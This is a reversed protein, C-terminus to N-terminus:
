HQSTCSRGSFRRLSIRGSPIAAWRRTSGPARSSGEHGPGPRGLLFGAVLVGFLLLPLIQKAFGWTAELWERVEERSFWSRAMYTFAALLGLVLAWRLRYILEYLSNKQVEEVGQLLPAPLVQTEGQTDM